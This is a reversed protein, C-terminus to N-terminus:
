RGDAIAPSGMTEGVTQIVRREGNPAYIIINTQTPPLATDVAKGYKKRVLREALFTAVETKEKITPIHYDVLPKTKKKDVFLPGFAGIVQKKAPMSLVEKFHDEVKKIVDLEGLSDSLWRPLQNTIDEAYTKSYNASLASQKANGFTKSKPDLYLMLFRTHRPDKRYQNAKHPNTKLKGKKSRTGTM